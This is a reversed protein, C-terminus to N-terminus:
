RKMFDLVSEYEELYQKGKETLKLSTENEILQLSSLETLYTKLRDFPVNLRVQIRTLVVKERDVEENLITLLDGYIKLKDRRAITKM